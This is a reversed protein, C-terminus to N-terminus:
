NEEITSLIESFEPLYLEKIKKIAEITFYLDNQNHTKLYGTPNDVIRRASLEAIFLAILKNIKCKRKDRCAFNHYQLFNAGACTACIPYIYCKNYCEDDIFNEDDYFDTLLIKKLEEESFTMPTTFACPYKKGDTDFFCMSKGIGCYKKREKEVIECYAIEKAFIQAPHLEPNAIYFKVLEMLQPLLKKIYEDKSWDFIGECLNTGMINKFGAKHLFIINSALYNISFESITMKVSQNPWNKLFFQIDILDFSNSRNYDQSEKTGDLSLGLLFEKKHETFWAKMKEDLLTGNTTAFFTYPITTEKTKVYEYVKVLLEFELLPEGGIFDIIIEETEKPVNEFIWDIINKAVNESMRNYTDHKQYCYVCSLNCNHTVCLSPTFRKKM